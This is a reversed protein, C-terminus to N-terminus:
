PNEAVLQQFRSHERLPDWVRHFRLDSVRAGAPMKVLKELLDIAAEYEGVITYIEALHQVYDPGATADMSVPLSDVAKRGERIAENTLGLHAYVKGLAAHIREHNPSERVKEELLARAKEFHLDAEAPEGMLKLIWGVYFEKPMFVVPDERVDEPIATLRELADDYRDDEIDFEVLTWMLHLPDALRMGEALVQRASETDGSIDVQLWAKALYPAVYDPALVIARDYAQEALDDLRLIRYTGGLELILRASRPDYEQATKQNALAEEFRGLRRQVYAINEAHLGNGPELRQAFFFQELARTHDRLGYYYYYGNGMRVVPDDPKISLAQDVAERATALRQNTRDYGRWYMYSHIRGLRAYAQAFRPDIEVAKKYLDSAIELTKREWGKQDYEYARLYLDYATTSETPLQEIRQREEPSLMTELAAAINRAVDSQILFIDTLDRDYTEAWLHQDTRADILQGTIRVKDGARRVTGELINPVGLENAIIRLSKPSDKYLMASTRSIVKLDGIKTLHTIIDDTVGDSFYEDEKSDSLNAFPLVAVSKPGLLPEPLAEKGFGLWWVVVAIIAVGAATGTWTWWRRGLPRITARVQEVLPARIESVAYVKIPHDVGKLKKEGLLTAEIGRKNRIAEYVQESVCVSGPEALPEIRSAVNVGDGFVDGDEFVVDGIHIGIRLSLNPDSQLIHQIELACNVAEVASAFSSLTGDGMEKLWEGRFQEIVPKLLARNKKLLELAKEEDQSMMATYGVIDTFMIAALKRQPVVAM